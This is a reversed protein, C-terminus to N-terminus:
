DGAHMGNAKRFEQWREIASAEDSWHAPMPMGNPLITDLTGFAKEIVESKLNRAGSLDAKVLLAGELSVEQLFAYQFQANSLNAGVFQTGRLLANLFEANTLDTGDFKAGSANAMGFKANILESCSLDANVLISGRFSANKPKINDLHAFSFTAGDLNPFLTSTRLTLAVLTVGRLSKPVFLSQTIEHQVRGGILSSGEIKFGDFSAAELHANSIGTDESILGETIDSLNAGQLNARSLNPVVESYRKPVAWHRGEQRRSLVKLAVEIDERRASAGQWVDRLWERYANARIRVRTTKELVSIGEEDPDDGAYEFVSPQGCQERVYASLTEIVIGYDERSTKALRELAFIAGVRTEIAASPVHEDGLRTAGLLEISRGFQETNHSERNIQNQKDAIATRWILFPLGILAALGLVIARVRGFWEDPQLGLVAKFEYLLYLALTSLCFLSIYLGIRKLRDPVNPRNANMAAWVTASLKRKCWSYIRTFIMPSM